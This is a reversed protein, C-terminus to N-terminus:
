SERGMISLRSLSNQTTVRRNHDSHFCARTTTVGLSPRPPPMPGSKPHIPTPETTMVFDKPPLSDASLQAVQDEAYHSLIWGPTSRANMAFQQFEAEIERLSGHRAPHAPCRLIRFRRLAPLSEQVVVAFGNRCHVEEGNGGNGKSDQVAEKDNGMVASANQMEVDGPM